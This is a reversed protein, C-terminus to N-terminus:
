SHNQIFLAFSDKKLWTILEPLHIMFNYDYRAFVCDSAINQCVGFFMDQLLNEQQEKM